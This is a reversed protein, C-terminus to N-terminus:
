LEGLLRALQLVGAEAMLVDAKTAPRRHQAAFRAKWARLEGAKDHIYRESQTLKPETHQRSSAVRQVSGELVGDLRVGGTAGLPLHTDFCAHGAGENLSWFGLLGSGRGRAPVALLRQARAEDLSLPRSWLAM